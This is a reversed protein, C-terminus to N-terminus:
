FCKSIIKSSFSLDLNEGHPVKCLISPLAPFDLFTSLNPLGIWLETETIWIYKFSNLKSIRKYVRSRILALSQKHKSKYICMHLFIFMMLIYTLYRFTVNKNRINLKEPTNAIFIRWVKQCTLPSIIIGVDENM